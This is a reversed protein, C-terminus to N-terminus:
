VPRSPLSFRHITQAVHRLAGGHRRQRSHVLFVMPSQDRVLRILDAAHHDPDMTSIGILQGHEEMLEAVVENRTQLKQQLATIKRDKDDAVRKGSREFVIAGSKPFYKM